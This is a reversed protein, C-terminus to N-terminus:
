HFKGGIARGQTQSFGPCSALLDSNALASLLMFGSDRPTAVRSIAACTIAVVHDCFAPDSDPSGAVSEVTM